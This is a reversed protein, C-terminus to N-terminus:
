SSKKFFELGILYLTTILRGIVPSLKLPACTGIDWGCNVGIVCVCDRVGVVAVAIYSYSNTSRFLRFLRFMGAIATRMIRIRSSQM